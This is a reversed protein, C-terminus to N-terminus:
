HQHEAAASTKEGERMMPCGSTSEKMGKMMGAEMHAMMHEMMKAQMETMEKEMMARQAVMETVVAATKDNARSSGKAANM